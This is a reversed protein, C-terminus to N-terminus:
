ETYELDSNIMSEECDEYSQVNAKHYQCITYYSKLKEYTERSRGLLQTINIQVESVSQWMCWTNQLLKRGAWQNIQPISKGMIDWHM